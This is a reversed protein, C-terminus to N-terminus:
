LEIKIGAHRLIEDLLSIWNSLVSHHPTAQHEEFLSQLLEMFPFPIWEKGAYGTLYFGLTHDAGPPYNQLQAVFFSIKKITEPKMGSTSHSHANFDDLLGHWAESLQETFEPHHSEDELSLIQLLKRFSLVHDLLEQQDTLYIQGKGKLPSAIKKFFAVITAFTQVRTSSKLGKYGEDKTKKDSEIPNIIIKEFPEPDKRYVSKDFGDM